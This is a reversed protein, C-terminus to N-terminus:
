DTFPAEVLEAHCVKNTAIVNYIVVNRENRLIENKTAELVSEYM